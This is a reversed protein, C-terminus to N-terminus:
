ETSSYVLLARRRIFFCAGPIFGRYQDVLSVAASPIHVPSLSLLGGCINFDFNTCCFSNKRSRQNITMASIEVAWTFSLRRFPIFASLDITSLVWIWAESPGQPRNTIIRAGCARMYTLSPKNIRRSAQFELTFVLGKGRRSTGTTDMRNSRNCWQWHWTGRLTLIPHLIFQM